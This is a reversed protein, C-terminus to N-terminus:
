AQPMTAAVNDPLMLRPEGRIFVAWGEQVRQVAVARNTDTGDAPVPRTNSIQRMTIEM